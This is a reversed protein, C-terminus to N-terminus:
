RTRRNARGSHYWRWQPTMHSWRPDHCPRTSVRRAPRRAPHRGLQRLAKRRGGTWHSWGALAAFAASMLKVNM